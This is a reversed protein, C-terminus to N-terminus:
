LRLLCVSFKCESAPDKGCAEPVHKCFSGPIPSFVSILKRLPVPRSSPLLWLHLFLVYAGGPGQKVPFLLRVGRSSPCCARGGVLCLLFGVPAQSCPLFVFGRRRPHPLSCTQTWLGICIGSFAKGVFMAGFVSPLTQNSQPPPVIDSLFGWVLSLPVYAQRLSLSSWALLSCLCELWGAVLFWTVLLLLKGSLSPCSCLSLDRRYCLCVSFAQLLVHLLFM